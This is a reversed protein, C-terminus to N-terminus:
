LGIFERGEFVRELFETLNELNAKVTNFDAM